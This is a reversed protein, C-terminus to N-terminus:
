IQEAEIVKQKNWTPFDDVMVILRYKYGTLDSSDVMFYDDLIDKGSEYTQAYLEHMRFPKDLVYSMYDQHRNWQHLATCHNLDFRAALDAFTMNTRTRMYAWIMARCEVVRRHRGRQYLEAEPVKTLNTFIEIAKNFVHAEEVTKRIRERVQRVKKLKRHAM